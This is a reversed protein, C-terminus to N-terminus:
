PTDAGEPDELVIRRVDEPWMFGQVPDLEFRIGIPPFPVELSQLITLAEPKLFPSDALVRLIGREAPSRAEWWERAIEDRM